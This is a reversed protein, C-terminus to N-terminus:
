RDDCPPLDALTQPDTPLIETAVSFRRIESESMWHMGEAPASRLTFWYFEESVGIDRYYDLFVKHAEDNRPIDKPQRTEADDAWSHVGVCAGQEVIREVGALFFDTGGSAIMGDAPVYTAIGARRILRGAELNEDTDSGPVSVTVIWELNPTGALLRQTKRLIAEGLEGSLYAATGDVEFDASQGGSQARASVIMLISAFIAGAHRLTTASSPM